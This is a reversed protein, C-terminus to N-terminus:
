FLFCSCLCQNFSCPSNQYASYLQENNKNTDEWKRTEMERQEKIISLVTCSFVNKENSTYKAQDELKDWESTM